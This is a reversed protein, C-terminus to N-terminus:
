EVKGKKALQTTSASTASSPASASSSSSPAATSGAGGPDTWTYAHTHSNFDSALTNVAGILANIKTIIQANTFTLWQTGLVMPEIANEGVKVSNAEHTITNGNKDVIIKPQSGTEISIKGDKSLKILIGANNTNTLQGQNDRPGGLSQIILEGEKNINWEIGNYEGKIRHGDEKKASENNRPHFWGGTIIPMQENSELFMVTVFDGDTNEAFAKGEEKARTYETTKPQFVVESYDNKGGISSVAPVNFLKRYVNNSKFSILSVNYEVKGTQNNKDDKYIVEDVQAKYISFNNFRAYYHTKNGTPIGSEIIAGDDTERSEGYSM